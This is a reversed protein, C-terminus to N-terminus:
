EGTVIIELVEPGESVSIKSGLPPVERLRLAKIAKMIMSLRSLPVPFATKVPVIRVGAEMGCRVTTTLVRLPEIWEQCGFAQGKQCRAGAVQIGDTELPCGKPCTICIVKKTTGSFVIKNKGKKDKEAM